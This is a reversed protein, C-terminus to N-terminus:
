PIIPIVVITKAVIVNYSDTSNFSSDINDFSGFKVGVGIGEDEDEAEILGNEVLLLLLLEFVGEIISEIFDILGNCALSGVILPPFFAV